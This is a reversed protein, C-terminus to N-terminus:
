HTQHQGPDALEPHSERNKYQRRAAVALGLWGATTVAFSVTSAAQYAITRTAKPNFALPVFLLPNTWAGLRTAVKAWNPANDIQGAATVLGGMILVDLHAQRLRVPEVIGLKAALGPQAILLALPWGSVAGVAVQTVGASVLQQDM